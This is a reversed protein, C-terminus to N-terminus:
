LMKVFSESLRQLEAQDVRRNDPPQLCQALSEVMLTVMTRELATRAASMQQLVDHCHSREDLMRQIGRVQGEVRRLRAQLQELVDDSVTLRDNTKHKGSM